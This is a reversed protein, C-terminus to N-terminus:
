YETPHDTNYCDSAVKWSNDPQRVLLYVAKGLDDTVKGGNKPTGRFTYTARVYAWDDALRLENVTVLHDIDLTEFLPRVHEWVMEKGVLAPRDPGMHIVDNTLLSMWDEAAGDNLARDYHEFLAHIAAIDAENQADASPSLKAVETCGALLIALAIVVGTAIRQYEIHV